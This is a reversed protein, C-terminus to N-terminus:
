PQRTSSTPRATRRSIGWASRCLALRPPDVNTQTNIGINGSGAQFINATAEDNLISTRHISVKIQRVSSRSKRRVTRGRRTATTIWSRTAVSTASASSACVRSIEMAVPKPTEPSIETASSLLKPTTRGGQVQLNTGVNGDGGQTILASKHTGDNSINNGVNDEGLQFILGTNDTGGVYTNGAANRSAARASSSPRFRARIKDMPRSIGRVLRCSVPRIARAATTPRLIMRRRRRRTSPWMAKAARPSRRSVTLRARRITGPWTARVARSSARSLTPPSIAPATPSRAISGFIGFAGSDPDILVIGADNESGTQVTRGLNNYGGQFISARNQGAQDFLDVTNHNGFQAIGGVNTGDQHIDGIIQNFDGFQETGLRNSGRQAVGGDMMPLFTNSTGHQYVFGDNTGVQSLYAFNSDNLQGIFANNGDALAGTASLALVAVSAMLARRDM